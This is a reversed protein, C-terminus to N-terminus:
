ITRDMKLTAANVAVPTWAAATDPDLESIDWEYRASVSTPHEIGADASGNSLISTTISADGGDSKFCRIMPQLARVGVIDVPLDSLTVISAAPLPDDEAEIYGADDPTTEDILEYDSTGSSRTWGSSVDGDPLLTLVQVTGIFGNNISGNDDGIVVDKIFPDAGNSESSLWHSRYKLLATDGTAPAGDTGSLVNVGEVRIEYAGTTRNMFWEIHEWAGSSIVPGTTSAIDTFGSVDSSDIRSGAGDTRVLKLGGTPLVQLSYRIDGNADQLYLSPGKNSNLPLSTLWWRWANYTVDTAVEYALSAGVSTSSSLSLVKGGSVGDPDNALADNSALAAWPTGALVNAKDTGYISFNDMYQISM